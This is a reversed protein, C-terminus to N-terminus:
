PSTPSQPPRRQPGDGAVGTRVPRRPRGAWAWESGRERQVAVAVPSGGSESSRRSRPVSSARRSGRALWPRNSPTSRSCCRQGDPSSRPPSRAREPAPFGPSSWSSSRAIMSCAAVKPTPRSATLGSSTGRVACTKRAATTGGARYRRTCRRPARNLNAILALPQAMRHDDTESGFPELRPYALWETFERSRVAAQCAAVSGHGLTLTLRFWSRCEPRGPERTLEEVEDEALGSLRQVVRFVRQRPSAHGNSPPARM